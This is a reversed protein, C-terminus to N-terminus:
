GGHGGALISWAMLVVSTIFIYVLYIPMKGQQVWHLWHCRKAIAVFLPQLFRILVPDTSQQTLIAPAPFIGSVKGGNVEPRMIKPLLHQAALTAYGEGTYSMRPNRFRYGCGWTTAQALPRLYRLWALFGGLVLLAAILLLNWQGLPIVARVLEEGIPLRAVQALPTALLRLVGQPFVGIAVCGVLLGGISILMAPASEHANAAASDRPEGLLCIGILRSFTVLAMAGVLGLLGFLLLPMLATYGDMTTGAQALGLYLLWESIIGNCPPLAGIALSGGIWFLGTLPMRKLLGGMRNMDRTGTAHLLAGAGLFMVGKFLAHNWLHLMGGTFALIAITPRGEAVAVLGFGFALFIIGINEVTSYALCRKIDRQQSAMSIGYLAGAIGLLVLLWGWWSPAPPLLSLIRLIGYIGTKILVGSMLASVHSPAAPHANPLWIHFPFLGAKVGFGFLALLFLSSASGLPLQALPAFDSFNLGGCYSGALMFLALLLMMGLHAVLLYLWAANRVEELHHDWAVLFFSSLTMIEWASLFLVANAATVVLLMALVMINFYFWHSALYRTGGEHALYPGAYLACFLSLVSIPLVFFAALPDLLLNFEAGPVPWPLTFSLAQGSLLVQLAAYGTLPTALVTTLTGLMTAIASKRALLVFLSGAFLLILAFLFQNM